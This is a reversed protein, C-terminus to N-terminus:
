AVDRLGGAIGSRGRAHLRAVAEATRTAGDLALTAAAPRFTDLAAIGAGLAAPTLQSAELVRVLGLAALRRARNAQEDERVDGYPVVLAPVGAGLLDMATNYGCQSVSVAAAAMEAGLDPVSRLVELDDCSAAASQLADWDGDPLFPGAIVRMPRRLPRQQALHAAVAARVLPGGALGGGASVLVHAGREAARVVPRAVFGTYEVRTGLPRSPRFSLSFEALAPDAHVLVGDFYRDCLGRARDDHRRQDPRASVLIDRVSCLVTCPVPARRARKILPLLEFAFKKRGFPFLEVLLVEPQVEDFIRLVQERREAQVQGVDSADGRAVLQRAELGLPPLDVIEVAAPARVGPPFVGGNLFVVRYRAALAEAILLSRMLHGIGVSHQCYLLLAPKM